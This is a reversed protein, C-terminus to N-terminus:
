LLPLREELPIRDTYPKDITNETYLVALVHIIPPELKERARIAHGIKNQSYPIRTSVYGIADEVHPANDMIEYIASTLRITGYRNPRFVRKGRIHDRGPVDMKRIRQRLTALTVGLFYAIDTLPVGMQIAASIGETYGQIRNSVKNRAVM